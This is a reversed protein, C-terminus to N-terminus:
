NETEAVVAYVVCSVFTGVNLYFLSLNFDEEEVVLEIQHQGQLFLKIADSLLRLLLGTLVMVRLRVLIGVSGCKLYLIVSAGREIHVMDIGEILLNVFVLTIDDIARLPIRGAKLATSIERKLGERVEDKDQGCLNQKLRKLLTAFTSEPTNMQSVIRGAEKWAASVQEETEPEAPPTFIVRIRLAGTSICSM